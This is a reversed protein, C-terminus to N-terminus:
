QKRKRLTSAPMFVHVISSLYRSIPQLPQNQRAAAGVTPYQVGLAGTDYLVKHMSAM